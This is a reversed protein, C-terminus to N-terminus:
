TKQLSTELSQLILDELKELSSPIEPLSVSSKEMKIPSYSVPRSSRTDQPQSSEPKLRELKSSAMIPSKFWKFSPSKDKPTPDWWLQFTSSPTDLLLILMTTPSSLMNWHPAGSQSMTETSSITTPLISSTPRATPSSTTPSFRSCALRLSLSTSAPRLTNQFSKFKPLWQSRIPFNIYPSQSILNDLITLPKKRSTIIM